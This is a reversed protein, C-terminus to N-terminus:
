HKKGITGFELAIWVGVTGAVTFLIKKGISMDIFNLFWVPIIVLLVFCIAFAAWRM